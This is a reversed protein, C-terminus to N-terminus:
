RRMVTPGSSRRLVADSRIAFILSPAPAALIDANPDLVEVVICEVDPM